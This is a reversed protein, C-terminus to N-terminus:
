AGVGVPHFPPAVALGPAGMGRGRPPPVVTEGLPQPFGMGDDWLHTLQPGSLLYSQDLMVSNPVSDVSGPQLGPGQGATPFLLVRQIIGSADNTKRM